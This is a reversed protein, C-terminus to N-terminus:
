RALEAIAGGRELVARHHACLLLRGARKVGLAKECRGGASYARAPVMAECRRRRSAPAAAQSSRAPRGPLELRSSSPANVSHAKRSYVLQV